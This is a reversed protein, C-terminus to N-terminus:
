KCRKPGDGFVCDFWRKWDRKGDGGKELWYSCQCDPGPTPGPGPPPAPPPPPPPPPTYPYKGYNSPWAAFISRYAGSIAKITEVHCDLNSGHPIHEFSVNPHMGVTYKVMKGWIAASPRYRKQNDFDCKSDGNYVGDDSVLLRVAAKNVYIAQDLLPGYPREGDKPDCPGGCGHVPRIVDMKKAVGFEDEFIGQVLDQVSRNDPQRAYVHNGDYRYPTMNPGYFMRKFDLKESRIIPVIVRKTFDPIDAHITENGWSVIWEYNKFEKLCRPIWAKSYKDANPEWFRQVGQLNVAWPSWQAVAGHFQCAEFLDFMVSMNVGNFIEFAKRMIPFYYSNFESLEWKDRSTDLMYPQFQSKKGYPHQGWVGWPFVRVFNAGANAVAHAEKDLGVEDLTFKKGDFSGFADDMPVFRGWGIGFQDDKWM